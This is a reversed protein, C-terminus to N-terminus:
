SPPVGVRDRGDRKACYLADDTFEFLSYVNEGEAALLSCAGVSVTVIDRGAVQSYRHELGLQRIAECIRESAREISQFRCGIAQADRIDARTSVCRDVM